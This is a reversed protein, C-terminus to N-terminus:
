YIALGEAANFKFSNFQIFHWFTNVHKVTQLVFESIKFCSNNSNSYLMRKYLIKRVSAVSAWVGGFGGYVFVCVCVYVCVRVVCARVCALVCAVCVCVCARVCVCALALISKAPIGSM